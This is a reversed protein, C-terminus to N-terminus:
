RWTKFTLSIPMPSSPVRHVINHVWYVLRWNDESKFPIKVEEPNMWVQTELEKITATPIKLKVIKKHGTETVMTVSRENGSISPTVSNNLTIPPLTFIGGKMYTERMCDEILKSLQNITTDRLFFQQLSHM